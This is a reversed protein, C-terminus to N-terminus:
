NDFTFYQRFLVVRTERVCPAHPDYHSQGAFFYCSDLISEFSLYANPHPFSLIKKLFKYEALFM